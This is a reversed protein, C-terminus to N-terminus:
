GDDLHAVVAAVEERRGVGLEALINHVHNKVTAREISLHDAIQKNSLGEAILGAIERERRTLGEERTRGPAGVRLAAVHEALTASIRPSCRLEGKAAAEVAEVVDSLPQEATVYGAVGHEILDVLASEHEPAGFVVIKAGNTAAALTLMWAPRRHTSVDVLIVTPETMSIALNAIDSASSGVVEICDDSALADALLERHVCVDGILLVRVRRASDNPTLARGTAASVQEAINRRLSSRAGRV